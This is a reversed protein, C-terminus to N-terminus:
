FWALSGGAWPGLQCSPGMSWLGCTCTLCCMPVGDRLTVCCWGYGEVDAKFVLVTWTGFFISWVEQGLDQFCFTVADLPSPQYIDKPWSFLCLCVSSYLTPLVQSCVFSSTLGKREACVCCTRAFHSIWSPKVDHSIWSPQVDRKKSRNRNLTGCILTINAGTVCTASCSKAFSYWKEM